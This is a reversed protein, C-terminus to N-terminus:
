SRNSAMPKLETNFIEQAKAAVTQASQYDIMDVLMYNENKSNMDMMMSSSTNMSMSIGNNDNPSSSMMM